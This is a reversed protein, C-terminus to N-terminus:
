QLSSPLQQIFIKHVIECGYGCANKSVIRFHFVYFDMITSQWSTKLFIHEVLLYSHVQQLLAAELKFIIVANVLFFRKSIQNMIKEEESKRKESM